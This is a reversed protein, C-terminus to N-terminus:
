QINGVTGGKGLGKSGGIGRALVSSATNLLEKLENSDHMETWSKWDGQFDTSFTKGKEGAKDTVVARVVLDGDISLTLNDTDVRVAKKNFDWNFLLKKFGFLFNQPM